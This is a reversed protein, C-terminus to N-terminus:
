SVESYNGTIIVTTKVKLMSRQLTASVVKLNSCKYIDSINSEVKM